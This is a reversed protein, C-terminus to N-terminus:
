IKEGEYAGFDFLDYDYFTDVILYNIEPIVVNDSIKNIIMDIQELINERYNETYMNQFYENCLEKYEKPEYDYESYPTCLAEDYIITAKFIKSFIKRILINLPGYTDEVDYDSFLRFASAMSQRDTLYTKIDMIKQKTEGKLNRLRLYHLANDEKYYNYHETKYEINM